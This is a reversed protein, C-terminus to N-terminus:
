LDKNLTDALVEAHNPLFKFDTTLFITRRKQSSDSFNPRVKFLYFKAVCFHM